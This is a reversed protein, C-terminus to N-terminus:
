HEFLVYERMFLSMEMSAKSEKQIVYFQSTMKNIKLAKPLCSYPFICGM